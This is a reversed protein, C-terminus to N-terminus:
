SDISYQAMSVEEVTLTHERLIKEFDKDFTVEFYKTVFHGEACTIHVEFIHSGFDYEWYGRVETCLSLSAFRSGKKLLINGFDILALTDPAL